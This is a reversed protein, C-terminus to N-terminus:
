EPYSESLTNLFFNGICKYKFFIYIKEEFFHIFFYIFKPDEPFAFNEIRLKSLGPTMEQGSPTELDKTAADSDEAEQFLCADAM